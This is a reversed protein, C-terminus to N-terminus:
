YAANCIAKAESTHKDYRDPFASKQVMQAATGISVSEWNNIKKLAAYFKGASTKPDMCDKVTGWYRPRQQFIGVSDHDKGSM